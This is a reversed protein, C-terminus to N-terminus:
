SRSEDGFSLPLRAADASGRFAPLPATIVHTPIGAMYDRYRGKAEFRERFEPARSRTSCRRCSAARSSCAAARASRSRSTARSRASCRSSCGRRRARSRSARSRSRAERRAAHRDSPWPGRARRARCLPERSGPGFCTSPPATVTAVPRARARGRSPSRTPSRRGDDRARRRRERRGLRRSAPALAAVGLGSGPGIAALTARAAAKGGGVTRLDAPGLQPLGWAIAAFDNCVLLRDM